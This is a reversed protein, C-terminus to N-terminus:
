DEPVLEAEPETTATRPRDIQPPQGTGENPNWTGYRPDVEVDATRLETELWESFALDIEAAIADAVVDRQEDFSAERIEDVRLIVPIDGVLFVPSIEGEAMESLSPIVELLQQTSDCGVDALGGVEPALATGLAEFDGGAELQAAFEDAAAPDAFQVVSVCRQTFEEVHEDFYAELLAEDDLITCPYGALGGQLAIVNAFRQVLYNRYDDDFADLVAQGDGTGSDLELVQQTEAAALCGEDVEYGGEAVAAEVITYLIRTSLTQAVFASNFTDDDEGLVAEGQEAMQAERQELFAANARISELEDVVEQSSIEIGNVTAAPTASGEDACGAGAALALVALAALARIRTM